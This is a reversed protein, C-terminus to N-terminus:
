TVVHNEALEDIKDLLAAMDIFNFSGTLDRQCDCTNTSSHISITYQRESHVRAITYLCLLRALSHQRWQLSGARLLSCSRDSEKGRNGWIRRYLSHCKCLQLVKMEKGKGHAHGTSAMMNSHPSRTSVLACVLVNAFVPRKIKQPAIANKPSTKAKTSRKMLRKTLIHSRRGRLKTVRLMKKAYGKMRM